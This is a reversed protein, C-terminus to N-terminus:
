KLRIDGRFKNAASRRRQHHTWSARQIPKLRYGIRYLENKLQASEKGSAPVSDHIIRHYDAAGHQGVCEYSDCYRGYINAPMDPFLAIIGQNPNLWKRFVVNTVM